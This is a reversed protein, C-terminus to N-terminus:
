RRTRWQAIVGEPGIVVRERGRDVTRYFDVHHTGDVFQVEAWGSQWNFPTRVYDLQTPDAMYGVEYADDTGSWTTLPSWGQRHTHGVIVSGHIAESKARASMGAHKRLVDGHTYWLDSIKYPNQTSHWKICLNQLDLLDPITLNRLHALAPAKGWLMKRLRDEHNGESYRIDAEPSITRIYQLLKHSEDIEQQLTDKRTPNADFRSLTYCDLSDGIIDVGDWIRSRLRELWCALLKKDHFPLHLDPLIIRRQTKM